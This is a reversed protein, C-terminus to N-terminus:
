KKLCNDRFARPSVGFKKKFMRSFYFEDNFGLKAAIIKVPMNSDQLFYMATEMKKGYLFAVPSIGFDRHFIRLMQSESRNIKGALQALSPVPMNLHELLTDHLIKGEPSIVKEDGSTQKKDAILSLLEVIIGAFRNQRLSLPSNELDNIAQIFHKEMDCNHFIVQNALRYSRLLGPILSGSFNFWYKEWPTDTDSFYRHSSHAPLLYCDGQAAHFKQDDVWITGSGRVVMELVWYSSYQRIIRYDPDPWTIGAIHLRIPSDPPLQPIFLLKENM